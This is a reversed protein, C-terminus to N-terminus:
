LNSLESLASISHDVKILPSDAGWQSSYPFFPEMLDCASGDKAILLYAHNEAALQPNAQAWQNVCEIYERKFWERHKISFKSLIDETIDALSIEVYYADQGNFRGEWKYMVKM